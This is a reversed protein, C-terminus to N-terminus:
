KSSAQSESATAKRHAPFETALRRELDHLRRAYQPIKAEKLVRVCESLLLPADKSKPFRAVADLYTEVASDVDKLKVYLGAIERASQPIKASDTLTASTMLALRLKKQIPYKRAAQEIKAKRLAFVPSEPLLDLGSQIFRLAASYQHAAESRQALLSFVYPQLSASPNMAVWDALRRYAAPAKGMQLQCEVLLYEAISKVVPPSTADGLDALQRIPRGTALNVPTKEAKRLCLLSAEASGRHDEANALEKALGVLIDSPEEPGSLPQVQSRVSGTRSPIRVAPLKQIYHSLDWLLKARAIEDPAELIREGPDVAALAKRFHRKGLLIRVYGPLIVEAVASKPNKEYLAVLERDRSPGPAFAGLHLMAATVGLKTDPFLAVFTGLTETATKAAMRDDRKGARDDLMSIYRSLIEPARNTDSAYTLLEEHFRGLERVSAKQDPSVNRVLWRALRDKSEVPLDGKILKWALAASKKRDFLRLYKAVILGSRKRSRRLASVVAEEWQEETTKGATRRVDERLLEAVVRQNSFQRLASEKAGTKKRFAKEPGRPVDPRESKSEAPQGRLKVVRKDIAVILEDCYEVARDGKGDALFRSAVKATERLDAGKDAFTFSFAAGGVAAASMVAATKAVAAVTTGASLWQISTTVLIGAAMAASLVCKWSARMGRIASHSM